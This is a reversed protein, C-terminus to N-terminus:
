SKKRGIIRSLMKKVLIKYSSSDHGITNCAKCFASLNEYFVDIDFLFNDCDIVLHYKLPKALDVDVFVRVFHRFDGDITNKDIRM